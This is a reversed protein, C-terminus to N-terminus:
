PRGPEGKVLHSHSLFRGNLKKEVNRGYPTSPTQLLQKLLSSFPPICEPNKIAPSDPEAAEGYSMVGSPM